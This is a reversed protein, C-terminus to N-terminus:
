AKATPSKSPFCHPTTSPNVYDPAMMEDVADFDGKAHAEMFRRALATNEELSM